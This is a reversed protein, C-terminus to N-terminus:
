CYMNTCRCQEPVPDLGEGAPNFVLPLYEVDRSILNVHCQTLGHLLKHLESVQTMSSRFLIHVTCVCSVFSNLSICIYGHIGNILM